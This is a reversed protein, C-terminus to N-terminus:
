AKAEREGIIVMYGKSVGYCDKIEHVAAYNIVGGLMVGALLETEKGGGAYVVRHAVPAIDIPTRTAADILLRCECM